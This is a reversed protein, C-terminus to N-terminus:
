RSIGSLLADLAKQINAWRFAAPHLSGHLVLGDTLALLISALGNAPVDLLEGEAEAHEIWSRLMVRRRQIAGAFADRVPPETLMATWLDANVQVRAPDSSREAIERAYARLRAVGSGGRESLRQILKEHFDSDDELLALLLDRKQEFYV